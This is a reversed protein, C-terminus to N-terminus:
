HCECQPKNADTHFEPVTLAAKLESIKPNWVHGCDDCRNWDLFGNHENAVTRSSGSKCNPCLDWVIEIFETFEFDPQWVFKRNNIEQRSFQNMRELLSCILDYPIYRPM